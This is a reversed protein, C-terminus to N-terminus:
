FGAATDPQDQSHAPLAFGGASGHQRAARRSSEGLRPVAGTTVEIPLGRYFIKILFPAALEAGPWHFVM